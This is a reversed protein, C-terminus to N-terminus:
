ARVQQQGDEQGRHSRHDDDHPLLKGDILSEIRIINHGHDHRRGGPTEQRRRRRSAPRTGSSRGFHVIAGDCCLQGQGVRGGGATM